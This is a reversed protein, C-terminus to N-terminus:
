TRRKNRTVNQTTGRNNMLYWLQEIKDLLVHSVYSKSKNKLLMKQGSRNIILVDLKRNDFPNHNKTLRSAAILDLDKSKLKKISNKIINETELSFGVFLKGERCGSLARLIDKNAALRLSLARTRKIKQKAPKDPRFDGVAACMILCDSKKIEKKIAALLDKATEISVFKKVKPPDLRTPGSILTVIHGRNSAAEAIKYGMYGSSRNSIFRVPDLPEITPGATVIIRVPTMRLGQKKIM